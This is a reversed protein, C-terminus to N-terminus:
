REKDTKSKYVEELTKRYEALNPLGVEERRRDVNKEDEIPYPALKGDKV